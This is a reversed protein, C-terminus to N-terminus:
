KADKEIEDALERLEAALQRVEEPNDAGATRITDNRIRRLAARVRKAEAAFVEAPTAAPAAPEIGEGALYARIQEAAADPDFQGEPLVAVAGKLVAATVGVGDTEAVTRFVAV